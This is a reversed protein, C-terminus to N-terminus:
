GLVAAPVAVVTLTGHDADVEITAGDPVRERAGTASVVCPLGLARSVAFCSGWQEANRHVLAAADRHVVERIALVGAPQLLVM